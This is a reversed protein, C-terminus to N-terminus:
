QQVGAQESRGDARHVFAQRQISESRGPNLAQQGESHRSDGPSQKMAPGRLTQARRRRDMRLTVLELIGWGVAFMLVVLLEILGM